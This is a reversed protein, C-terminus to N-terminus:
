RSLLTPYLTLDSKSLIYVPQTPTSAPLEYQLGYLNVFTNDVPYSENFLPCFLTIKRRAKSVYSQYTHLVYYHTHLLDPLPLTLYWAQGYSRLLVYCTDGPKVLTIASSRWTALQQSALSATLLLLRLEMRSRCFDEFHTTDALDKSYPLWLVSSDKFRVEFDLATRKLPDGAYTLITEIEYQNYDELATQFADQLTGAFLKVKSVHLHQINHVVPHRVEVTNGEHSIVEFPGIYAPSLKTPRPKSTDRVLLVLDGPQYRNQVAPDDPTQRLNIRQKHHKDMATTISLLNQNLLRLFENSLLSPDETLIAPPLMHYTAAAEGFHAVFPIQNTESNVRSNLIYKCISLVNPDSWRDKIHEELVLDRLISLIRGNTHEVGNSEHRDVLSFCHQLGLLRELSSIIENKFETGPDTYIDDVLGYTCIHQFLATAMSMASKDKSPYMDVLKTFHNVIVFLYNNGYIDTPSVTLTDIGIASHVHSPHLPRTLSPLSDEVRRKTKMCIPCTDVYDKLLAFPVHHGPYQDNLLRWTARAGHHGVRANHVQRFLQEMTLPSDVPITSPLPSPPDTPQTHPAFLAEIDLDTLSMEQDPLSNNEVPKSSTPNFLSLEPTHTISAPPLPSPEHVRSLWDAVMNSKGPIHRLLFNYSQLFIRWRIIKPVLSSEIWLLNNHDTELIFLKTQLYYSFHHVAFYIGYAEQEITSWRTAPGSFKQSAFGIPQPSGEKPLQLLVCGVGFLSADTRLVWDLEYDPYHLATSQQLAALLTEYHQQYPITWTSPKWVFDKKLMDYLPASLISYNPIFNKFFLASGLFSQLKKPTDPFPIAALSLKREKTLEYKQYQVLYGFFKAYPFGLFTKSFKLYINKEKCRNLILVCKRYADDYDHAMVLLNDFIAISWEAFDSFCEAVVRQLLGSAPGVGEPMFVPRVLGWPTLVSLLKSTRVTLRLQHFSNAWDFDLFYQFMRIRELSYQVHPIYYHGIEIHRNIAVYNGCFRIFPSTAKPAIVLNAAVSSDSPLYLYQCLRDFERKAHELLKPNIHRMKPKIEQPLTDKFQLDLPPINIGEWNQPVFVEVGVTQLLNVIDTSARFDPHVQTPISDLYTQLAEEYSTEMYHLYDGFNVPLPTDMDEPAEELVSTTWPQRLDSTSLQNFAPALNIYAFSEQAKWLLESVLPLFHTVIDPLGIIADNTSGLPVVFFKVRASYTVNTNVPSTFSIPLELYQEINLQTTGDALYVTKKNKINKLYKNLKESNKQIYEINIYNSTLAGTDFLISPCILQTPENLKESNSNKAKELKTNTNKSINPYSVQSLAPLTFHGAFHM